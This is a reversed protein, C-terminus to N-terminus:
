LVQHRCTYTLQLITSVLSCEGTREIMFDSIVKVKGPVWSLILIEPIVWHLRLWEDFNWGDWKFLLWGWGCWTSHLTVNVRTHQEIRCVPMAWDTYRRAVPQVAPTQNGVLALSKEKRWM